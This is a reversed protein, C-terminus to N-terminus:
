RDSRGEGCGRGVRGSPAGSARNKEVDGDVMYGGDRENPAFVLPEIMLPMAFRECLPKLRNINAICERTVQPQQPIQFLNVVVCAADWRLAQEVADEILLSFLTDPLERGYVNAVDTRLVLAPKHPAAVNQLWHAQGITLQIADPAAEILTAVAFQMNEIGSLFAGQNFFGHDVAVDFCNGDAAFLRQLRSKM